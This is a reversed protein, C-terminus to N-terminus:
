SLSRHRTRATVRNSCTRGCFRGHRPHGKVKAVEVLFAEGCEECRREEARARRGDRLVVSPEGDTLLRQDARQRNCAICSPILNEPRNDTTDGNLHDAALADPHYHVGPMWRVTRRCWTCAHPGDGIKAYLVRRHEAVCGNAIALPHNPLYRASYRLPVSAM